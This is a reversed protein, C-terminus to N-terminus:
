RQKTTISCDHVGQREMGNDPRGDDVLSDCDQGAVGSRGAFALRLKHARRQVVVLSSGSAGVTVVTISKVPVSLLGLLKSRRPVSIQSPVHWPRMLTLPSM